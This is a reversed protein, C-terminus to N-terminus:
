RGGIDYLDRGCGDILNGFSGFVFILATIIFVVVM